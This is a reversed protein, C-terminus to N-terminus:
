ERPAYRAQPTWPDLVILRKWALVAAAALVGSQGALSAVTVCLLEKVPCAKLIAFTLLQAAGACGGPVGIARRCLEALPVSLKM